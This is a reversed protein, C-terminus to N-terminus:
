KAVKVVQKDNRVDAWFFHPMITYYCHSEESRKAGKPLIHSLQM